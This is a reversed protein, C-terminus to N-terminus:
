CYIFHDDCEEHDENWALRMVVTVVNDLAMVTTRVGLWALEIISTLSDMACEWDPLICLMAGRYDIIRGCERVAKAVEVL